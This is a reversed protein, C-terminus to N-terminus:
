GHEKFIGMMTQIMDMQREPYVLSMLQHYIRYTDWLSFVTYRNHKTTLIKDGEMEPYQVSVDQLINPLVMTDYMATYFV